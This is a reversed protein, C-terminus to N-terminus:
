TYLLPTHQWIELVIVEFNRTSVTNRHIGARNILVNIYYQSIYAIYINKIEGVIFNRKM